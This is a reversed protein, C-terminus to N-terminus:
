RGRKETEYRERMYDSMERRARYQRYKEERESNIWGTKLDQYQGRFAGRIAGGSFIDIMAIIAFSAAVIFTIELMWFGVNKLDQVWGAFLPDM